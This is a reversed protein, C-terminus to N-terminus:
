GQAEHSKQARKQQTEIPACGHDASAAALGEALEAKSLLLSQFLGPTSHLMCVAVTHPRKWLFFIVHNWDHHGMGWPYINLPALVFCWVGLALQWRPPPPCRGTEMSACPKHQWGLLWALAANWFSWPRMTPSFLDMHAIIAHLKELVIRPGSSKWHFKSKKPRVQCPYTSTCRPGFSPKADAFWNPDWSWFLIGLM